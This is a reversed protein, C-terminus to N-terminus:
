GWSFYIIFHDHVHPIITNGRVYNIYCYKRSYIGTIGVLFLDLFLGKNQACLAAPLGPPCQWSRFGPSKAVNFPSSLWRLDSCLSFYYATHWYNIFIWSTVPWLNGHLRPFFIPKWSFLSHSTDWPWLTSPLSYCYSNHGVSPIPGQIKSYVLSSLLGSTLHPLPWPLCLHQPSKINAHNHTLTLVLASILCQFSSQAQPDSFIGASAKRHM